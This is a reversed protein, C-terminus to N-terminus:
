KIRVTAPRGLLTSIAEDAAAQRIEKSRRNTLTRALMLAGAAQSVAAMVRREAERRPADVHGAAKALRREFLGTFAGRSREGTRSIEGALVPMPCGIGPSRLHGDSLYGAVWAKLWDEGSLADFGAEFRESVDDFGSRIVEAVLDDKSEFHAYFGGHTLGAERMISGVSAGEFGHARFQRSAAALIERRTQSKRDAEVPM